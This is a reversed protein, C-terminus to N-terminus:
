LSAMLVDSNHLELRNRLRRLLQVITPFIMEELIREAFDSGQARVRIEM